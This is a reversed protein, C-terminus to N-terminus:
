DDSVGKVTNVLEQYSPYSFAWTQEESDISKNVIEYVGERVQHIFLAVKKGNYFEVDIVDGYEIQSVLDHLQNTGDWSSDIAPVSAAIATTVIEFIMDKSATVFM